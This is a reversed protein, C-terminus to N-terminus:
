LEGNVNTTLATIHTNDYTDVEVARVIANAADEYSVFDSSAASGPFAHTSIAVPQASKKGASKM